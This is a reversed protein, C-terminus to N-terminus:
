VGKLSALSPPIYMYVSIASEGQQVVSILVVSYLFDGGILFLNKLFSISLLLIWLVFILQLVWVLLLCNVYLFYM